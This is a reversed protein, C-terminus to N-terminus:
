NRTDEIRLAHKAWKM